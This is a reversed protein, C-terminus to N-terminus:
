QIMAITTQMLQDATTVIKTNAGYAQQAVILKSLDSTMDTTSAEVSSTDLTGAGNQGVTNIQANGSASTASYAQGDQLALGDPAAFTALPIKAVLQSQGNDFTAMVSGDSRMSLGEFNGTTVSDSTTAPATATGSTTSADFSMGGASGITGLNVTLGQSTFSGEQSTTSNGNVSLLSGDSSFAVPISLTSDTPSTVTWNYQASGDPATTTASPTWDFEAQSKKGSSDYVASTTSVTKGNNILTGSMTLTTSQTPVFSVNKIQIPKLDGSVKGNSVNYGELFYGSTNVLYGSKDFSFDGNRTYLQENGPVPNSSTSTGAQQLVNFYGNGSVALALNNTSSTIEGQAAANQITLARVSDDGGIDSTFDQDTTVFNQFATNTAKYGVTQSNAINNSLNSFAKSQANLGSVATIVSGFISM